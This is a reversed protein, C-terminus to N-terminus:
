ILNIFKISETYRYKTKTDNYKAISMDNPTKQIKQYVKKAAKLLPSLAHDADFTKSKGRFTNGYDSIKILYSRTNNHDKNTAITYDVSIPETDVDILWNDNINYGLSNLDKIIENLKNKDPYTWFSLIKYDKWLRGSYELLERVGKTGKTLTMMFDLYTPYQNKLIDLHTKGFKESTFLKGEFIGFAVADRDFVDLKYKGNNSTINDPNEMITGDKKYKHWTSKAKEGSLIPNKGSKKRWPRYLIKDGKKFKIGNSDTGSYKSTIWYPKM